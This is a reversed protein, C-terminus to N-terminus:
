RGRPVTCVAASTGINGALDSASAGLTYTRGPGSGAREARLRIEGGIVEIDPSTRGDGTADAPESSTATVTFSGPVLGSLEDSASATGVLVMAHNPPSLVCSAPLGTLVPPTKDINIGGVALDATNGALDVAQGSRSQNIGETSVIQPTPGCTAIGSLADACTFSVAVDTNNWGYQNAVPARTGAITPATRDIRVTWTRAEEENGQVDRAFYTVETVGEATVNLAAVPGPVVADFLQAGTAHLVIDAVGTGGPNDAAIFEMSVDTRNWGAANPPPTVTLTTIPPTNDFIEEISIELEYQSVTVPQHNVTILVHQAKLDQNGVGYDPAGFTTADPAVDTPISVMPDNNGAEPIDLACGVYTSVKLDHDGFSGDYCDQDYGNASVTFTQGPRVYFDFVANTFTMYGDGSLHDDDYDNMNGDAFDSLRIWERDARNVNMWFFSLEGDGPDVDQDDHLDMRKLRVKFHRLAPQAGGIWGVYIKRAYVDEPVVGTNALPVTVRLMRDQDFAGSKCAPSAPVTADFVPAIGVTNGPGPEDIWKLVAGGGPNPPICVDFQFNVDIPSTKVPCGDHDGSGPVGNIIIGMGCNLQDVVFGGRGHIYLDTATVPVAMNGSGPLARAQDRMSAIARAPHIESRYHHIFTPFPTASVLEDTPHGCDFIWSGDVWVRDGVSPWAWKPFTPHAGDGKKEGPRAGIEWEVEITDVPRPDAPDDDNVISLIDEQGPDVVIKTNHDHSDHNAPTDNYAVHSKDVRGSVSRFKRGPNVWVWGEDAIDFTILGFPLLELKFDDCAGTTGPMPAPPDDAARTSPASAIGTAARIGATLGAAIALAVGFRALRTAAWPRSVFQRGM